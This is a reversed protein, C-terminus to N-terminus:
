AKVLADLLQERDHVADKAAVGGGDLTAHPHARVGHHGHRGHEPDNLPHLV